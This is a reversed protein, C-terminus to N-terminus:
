SSRRHNDLFRLVSQMLDMDEPTGGGFGGHPMAEFVHLEAEVGASLLRRHMRVTNSLFLDRTGSQLFTPPFGSLDGFLPSLYPDTLDAGNAYLLNTSALPQLVNDIGNLTRFTDGSETLDVEPTLLVLGAPMPLGEDKARLLLAPALNGGASAGGVFIDHPQREALLHRYVALCDDLAAPYPHRPPMRYDLSWTIMPRIVSGGRGMLRCVDGGGLVLGGGHIDLYIPTEPGDEVHNPRFRYTTVGDIQFSSETLPLDPPLRSGMVGALLADRGMIYREWTLNDHPDTPAPDGAFESPADLYQAAQQSVSSPAPPRVRPELDTM